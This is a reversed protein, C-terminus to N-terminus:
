LGLGPHDLFDKIEKKMHRIFKAQSSIAERLQDVYEAQNQNCQRLTANEDRIAFNEKILETYPTETM